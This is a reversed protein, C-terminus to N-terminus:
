YTQVNTISKMAKKEGNVRKRHQKEKKEERRRYPKKKKKKTPNRKSQDSHIFFQRNNASPIKAPIVKIKRVRIVSSLYVFAIPNFYVSSSFLCVVRVSYM